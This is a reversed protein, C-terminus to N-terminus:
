GTNTTCAKCTMRLWPRDSREYEEREDPTMLQEKALDAAWTCTRMREVCLAAEYERGNMRHAEAMCRDYAAGQELLGVYRGVASAAAM